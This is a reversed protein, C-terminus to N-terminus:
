HHLDSGQWRWRHATNLGGPAVRCGLIHLGADHPKGAKKM